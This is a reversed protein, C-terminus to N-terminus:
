FGGRKAEATESNRQSILSSIEDFIQNIDNEAQLEKELKIIAGVIKEDVSSAGIKDCYKLKEYLTVLQAACVKNKNKGILDFIRKECIEMLKKDSLIRQDNSSIKIGFLIIIITIILVAAFVIIELALFTNINEKFLGSIFLLVAAAIFYVFLSCTTGTRIFVNNPASDLSLSVILGLFFAIQSFILFGLGMCGENSNNMKLLFFTSITAIVVVIGCIGILINKLLKNM